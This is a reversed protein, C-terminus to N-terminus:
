LGGAQPPAHGAPPAADESVSTLGFRRKLFGPPYYAMLITLAAALGIARSAIQWDDNQNIGTFAAALASGFWVIISLSVLAIRYRLTREKVRVYLTLYAIAGLIQPAILLLLVAVYLPGRIDQAYDLTVRWREVEVGIPDSAVVFYVLLPYYLVYFLTLPVIARRKGTFLYVLYYLLGLLAICIVLLNVHMLTVALPLSLLGFAGALSQVAGIVTTAALGFWWASFMTAALQADPGVRRQALRLGIFAYVAGAALAFAAAAGLTQTVM